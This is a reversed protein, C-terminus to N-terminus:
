PCEVLQSAAVFHHFDNRTVPQLRAAPVAIRRKSASATLWRGCVDCRVALRFHGDFLAAWLSSGVMDVVHKDFDFEDTTATSKTEALPTTSPAPDLTARSRRTQTTM